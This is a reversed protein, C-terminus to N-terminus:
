NYIKVKEVTLKAAVQLLAFCRLIHDTQFTQNLEKRVIFNLKM